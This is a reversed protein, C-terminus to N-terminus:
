FIIRKNESDLKIEVEFLRYLDEDYSTFVEYDPPCNQLWKILDGVTMKLEGKM